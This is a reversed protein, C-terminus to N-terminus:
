KKSTKAPKEPAIMYAVFLSPMQCDLTEYEVSYGRSLWHSYERIFSAFSTCCISARQIDSNLYNEHQKVLSAQFDERDKQEQKRKSDEAVQIQYLEQESLQKPRKAEEESRFKALRIQEKEAYFAANNSKIARKEEPSYLRSPDFCQLELTM